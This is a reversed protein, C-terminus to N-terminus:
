EKGIETWRTYPPNGVVADFDNRLVIKREEEGQPTIVPNSILTKQSPIIGFYDKRVINVNTSPSYPNKVSLNMAALHAAFANIDVGYLQDLVKKHLEKSPYDQKMGTKLEVLREYARVLFTGSGCGPDLVKDKESRIAWNVIMRAISPPTYFQGFAHRESPKILEEYIHGIITAFVKPDIEHILSIIYDLEQMADEEDSIKIQDFLGTWFIPEFDETKERAHSFYANLCALYDDVSEIQHHVGPIIFPCQKNAYVPILEPLDYINRLIKYFIIKNLLVYVMMKSLRDIREYNEGILESLKDEKDSGGALNNMLDRYVKSNKLESKLKDRVFYRDMYDVFYKLQGLVFNFTDLQGVIKNENTIRVVNDLLEKLTTENLVRDYSNYVYNQLLEAYKHERIAKKYNRTECQDLDVIEKAKEVEIPKFVVLRDPNATATIPTKPLSDKLAIMLSYCLAQGVVSIDYPDFRSSTKVKDGERKTEIVLVPTNQDNLVVLDAKKNKIEYQSCVRLKVGLFSYNTTISDLLKHLAYEFQAENSM